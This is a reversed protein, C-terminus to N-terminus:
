GHCAARRERPAQAAPLPPPRPSHASGFRLKVPQVRSSDLANAQLYRSNDAPKKATFLEGDSESASDEEAGATATSGGEAWERGYVLEMLNEPAANVLPGVHRRAM